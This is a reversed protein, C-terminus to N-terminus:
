RRVGREAAHGAGQAALQNIEGDNAAGLGRAEVDGAREADTDAALCHHVQSRVLDQLGAARKPLAGRGTASTLNLKM